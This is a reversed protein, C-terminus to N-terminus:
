GAMVRMPGGQERGVRNTFELIQRYKDTYRQIDSDNKAFYGAEILCAYLYINPYTTIIDNTTNSATLATPKKYYDLEYAYESDPTRNFEINSGVIAYYTPLGNSSDYFRRLGNAGVSEPEYKVQTAITLRRLSAFDSPLALTIGSLTGSTSTELERVRLDTAIRQEASKIFDDMYSSLDSRHSWDTIATKLSSYDTIM